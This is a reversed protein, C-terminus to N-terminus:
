QQKHRAETHITGFLNQIQEAVESEERGVIQDPPIEWYHKGPQHAEILATNHSPDLGIAGLVSRIADSYADVEETTKLHDVSIFVGFTQEKPTTVVKLVVENPNNEANEAM